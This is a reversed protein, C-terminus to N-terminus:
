EVQISLLEVLYDLLDTETIIGVVLQLSNATDVVPLGGIKHDRMM